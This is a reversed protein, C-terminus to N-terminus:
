LGDEFVNTTPVEILVHVGELEPPAAVPQDILGENGAPNDNLVLVPAIVPVGVAM